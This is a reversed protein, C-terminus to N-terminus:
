TVTTSPCRNTRTNSQRSSPVPSQPDASRRRCPQLQPFTFPFMQLWLHAIPHHLATTLQLMTPVPHRLLRMPLHWLQNVLQSMRLLWLQCVLQSMPLLWLQSVISPNMHLLWLQSVTLLNTLRLWLQSTSLLNIHPLWLQSATLPKILQLWLQNMIHLSMPLLWLQSITVQQDLIHIVQLSLLHVLILFVPLQRLTHNVV